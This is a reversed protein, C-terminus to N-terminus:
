PGQVKCAYPADGRPQCGAAAIRWGHGTHTLFLTDATTHVQAEGGWETTDLLDGRPLSLQELAVACTQSRQYELADRTAPALLTCGAQTDGTALASIFATVTQEVAPRQADACGALLLLPVAASLGAWGAWRSRM